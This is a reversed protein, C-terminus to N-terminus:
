ISVDCGPSARSHFLFIVPGDHGSFQPLNIIINALPRHSLAGQRLYSRVVQATKGAYAPFWDEKGPGRGAGPLRRAPVGAGRDLSLKSATKRLGPRRARFEEQRCGVHCRSSFTHGFKHFAANLAGQRSNPSTNGYSTALSAFRMLRPTSIAEDSRKECHCERLTDKRAFRLLKLADSSAVSNRFDLM